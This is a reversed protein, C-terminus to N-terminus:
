DTRWWKCVRLLIFLSKIYDFFGYNGSPCAMIEVFQYPCNNKKIKQVINQINKFGYAIAFVLKKESNVELSVEKFDPNRGVKYQIQDITVDFLAKAAYKFVVELYGGSGGQPGYFKENEANTFRHFCLYVHKRM